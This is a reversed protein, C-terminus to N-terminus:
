HGTGSICEFITHLNGSRCRDPCMEMDFVAILPGLAAQPLKEADKKAHSYGRRRM